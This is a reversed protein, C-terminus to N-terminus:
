KGTEDEILDQEIFEMSNSDFLEQDDESQNNNKEVIGDKIDVNNDIDSESNMSINSNIDDPQNQNELSEIIQKKIKPKQIKKKIIM